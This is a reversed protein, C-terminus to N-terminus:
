VSMRIVFQDVGEMRVYVDPHPAPSKVVINNSGVKYAPWCYEFQSVTSNTQAPPFEYPDERIVAGTEPHFSPMKTPIWTYEAPKSSLHITQDDAGHNKCFGNDTRRFSGSFSTCSLMKGLTHRIINKGPQMEVLTGNSYAIMDWHNKFWVSIPTDTYVTVVGDVFENARPFYSVLDGERGLLSSWSGELNSWRPERPNMVVRFHDRITTIATLVRHYMNYMNKRYLM